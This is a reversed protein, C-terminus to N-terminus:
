ASKVPYSGLSRLSTISGHIEISYQHMKSEIHEGGYHAIFPIIDVITASIVLSYLVAAIDDGQLTKSANAPIAPLNTSATSKTGSSGQKKKVKVKKSGKM